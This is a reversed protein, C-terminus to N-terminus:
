MILRCFHWIGKIKRDILSIKLKTAKDAGTEHKEHEEWGLPSRQLAM